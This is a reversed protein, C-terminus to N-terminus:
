RDEPDGHAGERAEWEARLLSLAVVDEFHDQKWIHQRLTGDIQFGFRQHMQVVAENSSMVECCLKNLGLEAFAFRMVFRETYSGVGRGRVAPDALYFAWYARRHQESIDYLNALGVPQDDLEIIWYTRDSSGLANGFWKAHETPSITHDTYMYRAVDPQNRWGLVRSIDAIAMPRLAPGGAGEKV